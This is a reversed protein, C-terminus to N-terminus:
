FNYIFKVHSVNLVFKTWVRENRNSKTKIKFLYRKYFGVTHPFRFQHCGTNVHIWFIFLFFQAIAGCLLQSNFLAHSGFHFHFSHTIHSCHPIRILIPLMRVRMCVNLRMLACIAANFKQRRLTMVALVNYNWVNMDHQVHIFAVWTYEVLLWNLITAFSYVCSFFCCVFRLADLFYEVCLNAWTDEHLNIRVDSRNQQLSINAFNIGMNIVQKYIILYYAFHSLFFDCWDFAIWIYFCIFFFCCSSRM